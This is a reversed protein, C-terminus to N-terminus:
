SEKTPTLHGVIFEATTHGVIGGALSQTHLVIDEARKQELLQHLRAHEATSIPRWTISGVWADMTRITDVWPQISAPWTTSTALREGCNQAMGVCCLEDFVLERELIECLAGQIAGVWRCYEALTDVHTQRAKKHTTNKRYSAPIPRRMDAILEARAADVKAHLTNTIATWEGLVDQFHLVWVNTAKDSLFLLALKDVPRATEIARAIKPLNRRTATGGKTMDTM